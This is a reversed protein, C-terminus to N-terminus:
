LERPAVAARRMDDGATAGRSNHVGSALVGSNHSGPQKSFLPFCLQFGVLLGGIQAGRVEGGFVKGRSLLPSDGQVLFWYSVANIPSLAPGTDGESALGRM